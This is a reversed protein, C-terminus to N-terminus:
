AAANAGSSIIRWLAQRATGRVALEELGPAVSISSSVLVAPAEGGFMRGALDEGFVILRTFLRAEIAEELATGTAAEPAPWAWAPDSGLARAIDGALATSCAQPTDGVLLTSGEGPGIVLRSWDPPPPKAVWVDFGMAELYARQRPEIV